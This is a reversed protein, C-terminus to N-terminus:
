TTATYFTEDHKEIPEHNKAIDEDHNKLLDM